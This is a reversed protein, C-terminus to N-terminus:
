ADGYSRSFSVGHRAALGLCQHDICTPARRVYMNFATAELEIRGQRCEFKYKYQTFKGNPSPGIVERHFEMVEISGQQSEIDIRVDSANEFVMTAPSVWFKFYTERHAPHVWSFIYDIDILFEFRESDALMSWVSADHWGMIEFDQDTWVQKELHYLDMDPAKHRRVTRDAASSASPLRRSRADPHTM